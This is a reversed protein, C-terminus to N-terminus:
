TTYEANIRIYEYSMDTGWGVSNQDGNKLDILVNIISSKMMQKLQKRNFSTHVGGECVKIQKKSGIYIDINDPDLDVGARGVAAIVRGWNPDRGFIATQVLNSTAVTRVIKGAGEKDPSNVVKYEILKTAGEGDSVISKALDICIHMLYKRFKVYDQGKETIRKNFALGNSLVTVMDNTSTDGDVSIMNFSDENCERLASQLLDPEIAVDSVIFALMTAMDPHIMGSGKAIGAISANHDGLKFSIYNEKQFTDTTMIANAAMTGNISRRSIHSTNKRIGEVVIDTPYPEGIVGTSAIIIDEEPIDTQESMVKVAAEAGKRGQLGTCANANGSTIVIAQAYGDKLHDMSIKLPEAKVLNKTCVAAASAKVDSVILALDRRKSKIGIHAGRARFGLVDTINKNM